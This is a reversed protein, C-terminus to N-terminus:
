ARTDRERLEPFNEDLWKELAGIHLELDRIEAKLDRVQAKKKQLEIAAKLWAGSMEKYDSM